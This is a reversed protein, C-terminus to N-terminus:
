DDVAVEILRVELGHIKAAVTQIVCAGNDLHEVVGPFVSSMTDWKSM